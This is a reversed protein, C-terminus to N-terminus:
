AEQGADNEQEPGDIDEGQRELIHKGKAASDEDADKRIGVEEESTAQEGQNKREKASGGEEHAHIANELNKVLDDEFPEWKFDQARALGAASMRALEKPNRKLRLIQDAMKGVDVNAYVTGSKHVEWDGVPLGKGAPSAVEWGAAYKTVLVPAGCAMAEAIPLGFGEVQSPLVFLDSANYMEVLGPMEHNDTRVPVSSNFKAMMPHFYIDSEVQYMRAVEMLNWGELWYNQFPVTHLYLVIDKQKFHHKLRAVAEILRPIQKRRVNTSVCTIVFKDEWHMQKRVADRIGTVNFIEHDVGHYYWPIERGLEKRVVDAGYQSVTAVPLTQLVARWDKNPIPEGEIPTYVFAPMDPTGYSIATVSGPDATMYLVDPKFDEVSDSIINIGLPDQPKDPIYHKVGMDDKPQEKILGGVSAVEHGESLLRNVVRANVRGFGTTITPSDGVLMVKM